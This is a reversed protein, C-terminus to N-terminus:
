KINEAAKKADAFHESRIIANYAPVYLEDMSNANAIILELDKVLLPSGMEDNAWAIFEALANNGNKTVTVYKESYKGELLWLAANDNMGKNVEDYLEALNYKVEAAGTRHKFHTVEPVGVIKSHEILVAHQNKFRIVYGAENSLASRSTAVNGSNPNAKPEVNGSNANTKPEVHSHDTTTKSTNKTEEM